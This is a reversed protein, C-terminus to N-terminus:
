RARRMSFQLRDMGRGSVNAAMLDFAELTLKGFKQVHLTDDGDGVPGVCQADSQHREADARTVFDYGYRHGEDGSRSRDHLGARPRLEDIDIRRGAVHTDGRQAAKQFRQRAGLASRYSRDNRNM